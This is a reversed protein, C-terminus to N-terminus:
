LMNLEGQRCFFHSAGGATGSRDGSREIGAWETQMGAEQRWLEDLKDRCLELRSRNVDILKQRVALRENRVAQLMFWLLIRHAIGGGDGAAAGGV